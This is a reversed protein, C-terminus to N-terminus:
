NAAEIVGYYAPKAEFNKFLLPSASSRWSSEDTIGWFTIGTVGHSTETKRYKQYLKFYSNYTKKQAEDSPKEFNNGGKWSGTIDLETIQVDLGKAIFDKICTEYETMSPWETQNHSQMGAIDIRSPLNKDNKAALISDIIKLYGQHKQGQFENYDNYALLVEKPAYKNAYQFASVIFDGNKYIAYWNSSGADRLYNDATANDSLAENVIDWAYVVQKGENNKAEWDKIHTFVSKIYWEQRADMEEVSVFSKSANYDQCFFTKPTQSHWVLVHGRMKLGNEKCIQMTKDLPEFNLKDQVPVKITIGKSSKFNELDNEDIGRSFNRMITDPKTENELTISSAHYKVGNIIAEKPLNAAPVAFGIHDFIGSDVYVSKLSTVDLWNEKTSTTPTATSASSPSINISVSVTEPTKSVEKKACSFFTIAVLSIIIISKLTNKM